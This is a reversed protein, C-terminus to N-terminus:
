LLSVASLCIMQISAKADAIAILARVLEAPKGDVVRQLFVWKFHKQRVPVEVVVVVVRGESYSGHRLSARTTCHGHYRGEKFSVARAGPVVSKTRFYDLIKLSGASYCLLGVNCEQQEGWASQFM